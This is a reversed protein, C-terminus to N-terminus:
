LSVSRAVVMLYNSVADIFAHARVCV